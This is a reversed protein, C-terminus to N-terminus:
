GSIEQFKGSEQENSFVGKKVFLAEIKNYGMKIVNTM